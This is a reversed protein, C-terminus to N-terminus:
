KAIKHRRFANFLPERPISSRFGADNVLIKFEGASITVGTAVVFGTHGTADSYNGSYSGIDGPM